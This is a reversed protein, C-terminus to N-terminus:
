AEFNGSMWQGYDGKDEDTLGYFEDVKDLLAWTKERAAEDMKGNNAEILALFEATMQGMLTETLTAADALTAKADDTM